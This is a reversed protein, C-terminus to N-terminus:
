AIGSTNTLFLVFAFDRSKQMQSSIGWILFAVVLMIFFPPNILIRRLAKAFPAITPVRIAGDIVDIVFSQAKQTWTSGREAIVIM